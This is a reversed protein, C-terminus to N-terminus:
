STHPATPEAASPRRRWSRSQVRQGSSPASRRIAALLDKRRQDSQSASGFDLLEGALDDALAELQLTCRISDAVFSFNHVPQGICKM